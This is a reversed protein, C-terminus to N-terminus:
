YDTRSGFGRMCLVGMGILIVAIVLWDNTDSRLILRQVYDVTRNLFLQVKYM